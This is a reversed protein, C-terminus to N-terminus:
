HKLPLKEPYFMKIDFILRCSGVVCIHQWKEFCLIFYFMCAKLRRHIACSVHWVNNLNTPSTYLIRGVRVNSFALVGLSVNNAYFIYTCSDHTIIVIVSLMFTLHIWFLFSSRYLAQDKNNTVLKVDNQSM